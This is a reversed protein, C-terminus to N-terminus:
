MIGIVGFGFNYIGGLGQSRSGVNHEVPPWAEGMWHGEGGDAAGTAGSMNEEANTTSKTSSGGLLLRNDPDYCPSYTYTNM